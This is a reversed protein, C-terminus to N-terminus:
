HLMNERLLEAALSGLWYDHATEECHGDKAKSFIYSFATLFHGIADWQDYFDM